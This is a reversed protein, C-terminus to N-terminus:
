GAFVITNLDYKNSRNFTPRKRKIDKITNISILPYKNHDICNYINTPSGHLEPDCLLEIVIDIMEPTIKSNSGIPRNAPPYEINDLDYKNSHRYAQHKNQKIANIVSLTVVDRFDPRLNELIEKPSGHYREDLLMDRVLDQIDASISKTISTIRHIFDEKTYVNSITYPRKFYKIKKLTSISIDIGTYDIIEKYSMGQEMLSRLRDMDEVSIISQLGTDIAHLQNDRRTVWELNKHYNNLKNGDIHNVEDCGMQEPTFFTAVLRHLRYNSPVKTNTMLNVYAYGINIRVKIITGRKINRIRGFNSIEYTNPKINSFNLVIWEEIDEVVRLNHLRNNRTDGDIHEVKIPKGILEDPILKFAKTMLTDVAFLRMTKNDNCTMLTFDYGNTSHYSPEYAHFTDRIRGFSSISYKHEMIEPEVFRDICIWTEETNFTNM